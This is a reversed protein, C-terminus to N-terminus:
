RRGVREAITLCESGCLPCAAMGEMLEFVNGCGSCILLLLVQDFHCRAAEALMGRRVIDWQIQTTGRDADCRVDIVLHLDGDQQTQVEAIFRQAAELICQHISADEM